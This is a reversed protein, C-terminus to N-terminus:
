LSQVCSGKCAYPQTDQTVWPKSREKFVVRTLPAMTDLAVNLSRTIASAFNNLCGESIRPLSLQLSSGSIQSSRNFEASLLDALLTNFNDNDIRSIKRMERTVPAMRPMTIQYSLKIFHHGAAFPAESIQYDLILNPDSAIVLDLCSEHSSGDAYMVHHTPLVSALRLNYTELVGLLYRAHRNDSSM